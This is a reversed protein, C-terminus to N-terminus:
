ESSRDTIRMGGAASAHMHHSSSTKSTAMGGSGNDSMQHTLTPVQAKKQANKLENGSGSNSGFITPFTVSGMIQNGGSGASTSSKKKAIHGRSGSDSNAASYSTQTKIITDEKSDAPGKQM